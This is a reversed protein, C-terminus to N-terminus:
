DLRTPMINFHDQSFYTHLRLSSEIPGAYPEFSVLLCVTLLFFEWDKISGSPENIHEYSGAM